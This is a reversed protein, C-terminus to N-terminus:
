IWGHMRYWLLALSEHLTLENQRLAKWSPVLEESLPGFERFDCPAPIVDIGQKRFCAAARPMSTADMVLAIRHINHMKLLQSGFVANEHTSQSHEETWITSEPVGLSVMLDRMAVAYSQRNPGGGSALVPVACRNKYLWAALMCRDFSERDALAYPREFQPPSFASSLVVIAQPPRPASFPKIPYQGELPRSFLWDLPPWSFIAFALIGSVLLAKRPCHRLKLLGLFAALLCLSILPQTYTM